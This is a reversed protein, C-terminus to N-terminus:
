NKCIFDCFSCIDSTIGTCPSKKFEEALIKKAKRIKTHLGKSFCLQIMKNQSANTIITELNDNISGICLQKNENAFGCCPAIKGNSHIYLINGPGQCYDDKFWKKAQWALPSNSPFTQALKYTNPFQFSSYPVAEQENNSSTQQIVTQINISDPGFLKQCAEIFTKIRQPNQGHFSDFSIGIKGDYGANYVKQLTEQLDTENKWWDGNTMIQDFLLDLSIATKTLECIFDVYLFPEGGTFGIHTIRPLKPNKEASQVCKKLFNQATNIDLNNQTRSVFCHPCHLNCPDTASFIIETPFFSHKM